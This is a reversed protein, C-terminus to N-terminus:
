PNYNITTSYTSLSPRKVDVSVSKTKNSSLYWSYNFSLNYTVGKGVYANSVKFVCKNSLFPNTVSAKYSKGNGSITASKCDVSDIALATGRSPIVTIELNAKDSWPYAYSRTAITGAIITVMVLSAVFLRLHKM